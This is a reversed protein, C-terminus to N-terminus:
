SRATAEAEGALERDWNGAFDIDVYVELAKNCDPKLILGKTDTGKLYRALWQIARGHEVKPENSFRACQQTM